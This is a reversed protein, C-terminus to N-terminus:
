DQINKLRYQGGGPQLDSWTADDYGSFVRRCFAGGRNRCERLSAREAEDRSDFGCAVGSSQTQSDYFSAVWGKGECRIRVQTKGRSSVSSAWQEILQGLRNPEEAVVWQGDGSSTELFAIGAHAGACWLALIAAAMVSSLISKM